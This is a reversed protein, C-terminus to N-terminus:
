APRWRPMLGDSHIVVCAGDSSRKILGCRTVSALERVRELAKKRVAWKKSEFCEWFAIKDDGVTIQEKALPGLIDKPTAFEYADLGQLYTLSEDGRETVPQTM